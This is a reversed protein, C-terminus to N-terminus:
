NGGSPTFVASCPIPMDSSNAESRTSLWTAILSPRIRSPMSGVGSLVVGVVSSSNKLPANARHAGRPCCLGESGAVLGAPLSKGTQSSGQVTRDKGHRLFIRQSRCPLCESSPRPFLGLRAELFDKAGPLVRLRKLAQRLDGEPKLVGGRGDIGPFARKAEVALGRIVLGSRPRRGHKSEDNQVGPAVHSHASPPQPPGPAKQLGM